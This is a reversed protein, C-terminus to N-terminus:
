MLWPEFIVFAAILGMVLIYFINVKKIYLLSSFITWVPVFVILLWFRWKIFFDVKVGKNIESIYGQSSNFTHSVLIMNVFLQLALALIIGIVAPKIWKILGVLYKQEKAKNKNIYKTWIIVFIISPITFVLYFLIAFIWGWWQYQTIILGTSAAFKLSLVGPTSNGITFITNIDSQSIPVGFNPLFSWFWSFFPMFVQGGGFVLLAILFIAITSIIIAIAIM